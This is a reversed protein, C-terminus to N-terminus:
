DRTFPLDAPPDEGVRGDVAERLLDAHGTHRAYEEILDVLLRRLSANEGGDDTIDAPQDLGGSALAEALTRRSRRVAEDWWRSLQAPSDEGASVFFWDDTGDYGEAGWDTGSWQGRFKVGFTYDEVAALHKLLGGLTLASAGITTSLGSADLGDTKWRFTARMRELSGVLHAEETGAM